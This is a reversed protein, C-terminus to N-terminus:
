GVGTTNGRNIEREDREEDRKLLESRSHKDSSTSSSEDEEASPAGTKEMSSMIKDAFEDLTMTPNNRKVLMNEIRGRSDVRICEIGDRGSPKRDDTDRLLMIERSLHEINRMSLVYFYELLKMVWERDDWDIFDYKFEKAKRWLRMKNDRGNGKCLEVTERGVLGLYECDECYEKFLDLAEARNGDKDSVTGKIYPATYKLLDNTPIEHPDGVDGEMSQIEGTVGIDRGELIRVILDKIDM